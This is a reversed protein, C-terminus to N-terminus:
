NMEETEVFQAASGLNVINELGVIEGTIIDFTGVQYLTYDDPWQSIMSGQNLYHMHFTRVGAGVTREEILPGFQNGKTDKIAFLLNM